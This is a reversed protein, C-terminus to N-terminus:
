NGEIQADFQKTRHPAAAQIREFDGRTLNMRDASAKWERLMERYDDLIPFHTNYDEDERRSERWLGRDELLFTAYSYHRSEDNGDFGAFRLTPNLDRSQRPTSPYLARFMQLIDRVEGQVSESIPEEFHPMLDEFDKDYGSYLCTLLLEYHREEAPNLRKLIEYQNSLILKDKPTLEM